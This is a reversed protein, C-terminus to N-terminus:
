KKASEYNEYEEAVFDPMTPEDPLVSNKSKALAWRTLWSVGWNGQFEDPLRYVEDKLAEELTTFQYGRNKLMEAVKDFYAANISNAHLLLIQKPERGFLKISQREWYDFKTELYPIYAAAVRARLNEDGRKIALDYVRAFMYDDNDFTVPAITYGHLALFVALKRKTKLSKGTMLYPHRFYRIPKGKAELLEKTITEGRLIEGEYKELSNSNLSLHSFTHNGLELGGDLWARLM